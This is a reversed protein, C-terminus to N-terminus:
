AAQRYDEELAIVLRAAPVAATHEASLRMLFSRLAYVVEPDFAVGSERELIELARESTLGERYPRSCRGNPM